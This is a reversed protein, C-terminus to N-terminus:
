VLWTKVPEHLYNAGYRMIGDALDWLAKCNISCVIIKWIINGEREYKTISTLNLWKSGLLQVSCYCPWVFFKSLFNGVIGNRLNGDDKAALVDRLGYIDSGEYNRMVFLLLRWLRRGMIGQEDHCFSWSTTAEKCGPIAQPGDIVDAKSPTVRGIVSTIEDAAESVIDARSKLQSKSDWQVLLIKDSTFQCVNRVCNYYMGLVIM